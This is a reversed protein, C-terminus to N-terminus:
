RHLQMASNSRVTVHKEEAKANDMDTLPVILSGSKSQVSGLCHKGTFTATGKGIM